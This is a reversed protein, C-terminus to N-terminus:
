VRKGFPFNNYWSVDDIRLFNNSGYSPPYIQSSARYSENFSSGLNFSDILSSNKYAELIGQDAKDFRTTSSPSTINFPLQSNQIIRTYQSGAPYGSPYNANLDSLYGTYFSLSSVLDNANLSMPGTPALYFLIENTEDLAECVTTSSTWDLLADEWSSDTPTGLELNCADGAPGYPGTAGVSGIPGKPGVSGTDGKPGTAGSEGAAGPPGSEGQTGGGSGGGSEGSGDDPPNISLAVETKTIPRLYLSRNGYALRRFLGTFIVTYSGVLEFSKSWEGRENTNTQAILSRDSSKVIQVTVIGHAPVAWYPFFDELPKSNYLHNILAM